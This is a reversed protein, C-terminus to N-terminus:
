SAEAHAEGSNVTDRRAALEDVAITLPIRTAPDAACLAADAWWLARLAPSKPARGALAALLGALLYIRALMGAAVYLRSLLPILQPTVPKM